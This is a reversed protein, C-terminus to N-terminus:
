FSDVLSIGYDGEICATAREDDLQETSLRRDGRRIKQLVDIGAEIRISQKMTDDVIKNDLTAPVRL